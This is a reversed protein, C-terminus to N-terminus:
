VQRSVLMDYAYTDKVRRVGPIAICNQYGTETPIPLLRPVNRFTLYKKKTLQRSKDGM